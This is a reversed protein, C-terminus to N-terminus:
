WPQSFASYPAQLCITEGGLPNSYLETRAADMRHRAQEGPTGLGFHMPFFCATRIRELFMKAGTYYGSGIRSDVPFMALDIEPAALAISDLISSYSKLAADVEADTSEDRWIWANLDGAHFVRRGEVEMLYSNGTDTSGFARVGVRGDDFSEGPRLVTVMGADPKHGSWVSTASLIHRSWRAVDKSIVYRIDPFDKEWEFIERTFHDKHHHSVLVYLPKEPDRDRLFLPKEGEGAAPDKWFDFVTGCSETELVFCDHWVYILRM